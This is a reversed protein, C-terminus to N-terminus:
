QGDFDNRFSNALNRDVDRFGNQINNALALTLTKLLAYERIIEGVIENLERAKDASQGTSTRIANRINANYFTQASNSQALPRLSGRAKDMGAQDYSIRQGSM